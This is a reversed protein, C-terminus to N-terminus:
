AIALAISKFRNAGQCNWATEATRWRGGQVQNYATCVVVFEGGFGCPQGSMLVPTKRHAKVPQDAVAKAALLPVPRSPCHFKTNGFLWFFSLSCIMFAM